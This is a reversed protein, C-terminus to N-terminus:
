IYRIINDINRIIVPQSVKIQERLWPTNKFININQFNLIHPATGNACWEYYNDVTIKDDRFLFVYSKNVHYFEGIKQLSENIFDLDALDMSAFATSISAILKQYNAQYQLQEMICKNKPKLQSM